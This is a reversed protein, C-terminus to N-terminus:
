EAEVVLMSEFIADIEELRPNFDIAEAANLKKVEGSLLNAFDDEFSNGEYAFVDFEDPLVAVDLPILAHVYYRGEDVLGLFEYAIINNDPLWFNQAYFTLYRVGIGNEMEIFTAQAVMMQAANVFPLSPMASPAKETELVKELSEMQEEHREDIQRFDEAVYIAIQPPYYFDESDDPYGELTYRVHAPRVFMPPFNTEEDLGIAEVLEFSIDIVLDDSVLFAIEGLETTQNLLFGGPIEILLSELDDTTDSESAADVPIGLPELWYEEPSGEATWGIDDQYEVQWWTYGDACVPGGIVDFGDGGLIMTIQSGELSPQTRLRNSDGPLVRGREGTILRPPLNNPCSEQAVSPQSNAIMSTSILLLFLLVLLRRM